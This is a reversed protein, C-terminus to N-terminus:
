ESGFFSDISTLNISDPTAASRGFGHGCTINSQLSNYLSVVDGERYDDGLQISYVAQDDAYIVNFWAPYGPVCMTAILM